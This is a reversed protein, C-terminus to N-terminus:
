RPEGTAPGPAAAPATPPASLMGNQRPGSFVLQFWNPFDSLRDGTDKDQNLDVAARTRIRTDLDFDASNGNCVGEIENLEGEVLDRGMGESYDIYNGAGPPLGGGLEVANAQGYFFPTCVPLAYRNMSDYGTRLQWSYSMVSNYNPTYQFVTEGGHRQQLNHGLEHMLTAARNRVSNYPKEFRDLGVICDDGPGDFDTGEANVHVDSIGSGGEALARAWICYHFLRGRVRDDFHDAKLLYFNRVGSAPNDQRYMGLFPSFPVRGGADVYLHIGNGGQPNLIPASQFAAQVVGFVEAGPPHRLSDMLDVELLVDPRYPHAGLAPLDVDVVQDGDADYGRLEWADYLDDGDSDLTAEDDPLRFPKVASTRGDPNRLQVQLTAGARRRGPAVVMALYHLIPYGLTAPDVGLLDNELTQHPISAQVQGDILVQGAPDLNAGQVYLWTTVSGDPGFGTGWLSIRDLRPAYPQQAAAPAPHAWSLLALLLVAPFPRNMM